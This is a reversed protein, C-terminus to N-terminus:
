EVVLIGAIANLFKEFRLRFTMMNKRSPPGVVTCELLPRFAEELRPRMNVNEERCLLSNVFQTFADRDCCIVSYLADSGVTVM